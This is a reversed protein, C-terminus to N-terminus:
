RNPVDDSAATGANVGRRPLEPLYIERIGKTALVQDESVRHYPVVHRPIACGDLLVINSNKCERLVEASGKDGSVWLSFM